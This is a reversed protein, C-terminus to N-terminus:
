ALKTWIGQLLQLKHLVDPYQISPEQLLVVEICGTSIGVIRDLKLGLDTTRDSTASSYKVSLSM